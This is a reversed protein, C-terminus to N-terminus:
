GPVILSAGNSTNVSSSVGVFPPQAHSVQGAAAQQLGDSEQRQGGGTRPDEKERGPLTDGMPGRPMEANGSKHQGESM